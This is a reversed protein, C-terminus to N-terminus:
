NNRKIPYALLETKAPNLIVTARDADIIVIDGDNVLKSIGEVGMVYPIELSRAVIATHSNAGGTETVFGDVRYRILHLTEAPSLDLAVILAGKKIKQFFEQSKGMLNRQVANEIYNIDYKRDRFYAQHIRSFSRKIESIAKDFAWEANIREEEITGVTNRVLLEDQLLLIHSDLITIQERGQIRCLKSKIQTLAEKCEELSKFFRKVEGKIEGDHIWYKPFSIRRTGFLAVEGIAIGGAM